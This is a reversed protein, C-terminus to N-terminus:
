SMASVWPSPDRRRRRTAWTQSFYPSRTCNETKSHRREGDRRSRISPSTWSTMSGFRSETITYRKLPSISSARIRNPRVRDRSSPSGQIIQFRRAFGRHNVPCVRHMGWGCRIRFLLEASCASGVAALSRGMTAAQHERCKAWGFDTRNEGILRKGALNATDGPSRGRGENLAQIYTSPCVSARLHRRPQPGPRRPAPAPDRPGNPRRPAPLRQPQPRRRQANYYSTESAHTEDQTAPAAAGAKTSRPDVRARNRAGHHHRRPQPGPRRQACASNSSATPVVYWHRRPQPGPRRNLMRSRRTGRLRRRTDTAPSIHCMHRPLLHSVRGSTVLKLTLDRGGHYRPQGPSRHPTRRATEHPPPQGPHQRHPRPASAARPEPDHPSRHATVM